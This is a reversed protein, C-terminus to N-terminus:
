GMEKQSELEETDRKYPGEYSCPAKGSLGRDDGWTLTKLKIVSAFDRKGHLNVFKYM